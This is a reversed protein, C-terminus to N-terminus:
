MSVLSIFFFAKAHMQRLNSDAPRKQIHRSVCSALTTAADSNFPRDPCPQAAFPSQLMHVPITYSCNLPLPTLSGHSALLIKNAPKISEQSLNDPTHLQSSAKAPPCPPSITARRCHRGPLPSTDPRVGM